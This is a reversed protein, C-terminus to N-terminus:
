LLINQIIFAVNTLYICFIWEPFHLCYTGVDVTHIITCTYTSVQAYLFQTTIIYLKTPFKWSAVIYQQIHHSVVTYVYVLPHKSYLFHFFPFYDLFSFTAPLYHYLLQQLHKVPKYQHVHFLHIHSFTPIILM